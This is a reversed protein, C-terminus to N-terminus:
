ASVELMLSAKQVDSTDRYVVAALAAQSILWAAILLACALRCYSVHAAPDIPQGPHM